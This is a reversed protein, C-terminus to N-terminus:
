DIFKIGDKGFFNTFTELAGRTQEKKIRSYLYGLAVKQDTYTNYCELLLERIGKSNTIDEFDYRKWKQSNDIQGPELNNCGNWECEISCYADLEEDTGYKELRDENIVENVRITMPILQARNYAQNYM